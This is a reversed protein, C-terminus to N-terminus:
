EIVMAIQQGAPIGWFSFDNFHTWEAKVVVKLKYQFWYHILHTTTSYAKRKERKLKGSKSRLYYYGLHHCFM